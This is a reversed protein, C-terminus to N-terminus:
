RDLLAAVGPLVRGELLELTAGGGTSIHTMRDACGAQEVAAVTDGGGIVTVANLRGVIEALARTGAAFPPVEFVGMPGNWLVTRADALAQAFREVTAPGIDAILLDPPVADIPVVRRPAEAELRDVVVADVPLVVEVGAQAAARLLDTAVDLKDPEVLSRGVEHGQAKLFTNAMGGGILLRDVKGLLNRLVGIKTSVKAGGIIAAFPREPADLIRSFADLEKEMLLGAVAPLYHTIGETSAHARHATGFADDVYLDGLAALQRSFAADNQEEEPHFRLNELLLVEGPQLAAVAAEVEPGVCDRVYRVPAGLLQQLVEAVPALRLSERVQGDPRGLHSMLIVRAGRERLYNITPLAERIRTADAVRGEADLPVNFDVRVLVRKGAVDVDRVTQKNM